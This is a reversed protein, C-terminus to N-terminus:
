AAAKGAMLGKFMAEVEAAEYQLALYAGERDLSFVVVGLHDRVIIQGAEATIACARGGLTGPIRDLIAEPARDAWRLALDALDEVQQQLCASCLGQKVWVCGGPCARDETCGCSTCPGPM